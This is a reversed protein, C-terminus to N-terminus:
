RRIYFLFPIFIKRKIGSFAVWLKKAQDRSRIEKEWDICEQLEKSDIDFTSASSIALDSLKLSNPDIFAFILHPQDHM